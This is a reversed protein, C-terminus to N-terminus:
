QVIFLNPLVAKFNFQEGTDAHYPRRSDSFLVAGISGILSALSHVFILTATWCRQVWIMKFNSGKDVVREVISSVVMSSMLAETISSAARWSSSLSNAGLGLIGESREFEAFLWCRQEAGGRESRDDSPTWGLDPWFAGGKVLACRTWAIRRRSPIDVSTCRIDPVNRGETKTLVKQQCHWRGKTTSPINYRGTM